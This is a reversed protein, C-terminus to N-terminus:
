NGSSEASFPGSRPPGTLTRASDAPVLRTIQGAVRSPVFTWFLRLYNRLAAPDTHLAELYCARAAKRDGRAMEVLGISVLLSGLFNVRVARRGYRKLVASWFVRGGTLYWQARRADLEFERRMLIEPVFDCRGHELALLWMWLDEHSTLGPDFGGVLDFIERRMV